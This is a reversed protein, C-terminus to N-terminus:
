NISSEASRPAVFHLLPAGGEHRLLDAHAFAARIGFGVHHQSHASQAQTRLHPILLLSLHIPAAFNIDIEQATADWPEATPLGVQRQIGANNILVNLHPFERVVQSALSIRDSQSGADSVKVHITPHKQKFDLLAKESRGTVIVENGLQLLQTALAMGIGSSGGTILITNNSLLM